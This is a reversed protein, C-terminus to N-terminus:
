HQVVLGNLTHNETNKGVLIDKCIHTGHPNTIDAVTIINLFMRCKNLIHMTKPKFNRSQFQAMLYSDGERILPPTWADSVHITAQIQHLFKWLYTLRTHPVYPYANPNATLIQVGCGAHLQLLNLEIIFLKAIDDDQRLHGMFRRIHQTGQENGLHHRAAGGYRHPGFLVAHPTHRNYGLSPLVAQYIPSMIREAQKDTFTTIPLCYSAVPVWHRYVVETEIRSLPAKKIRAALEQSQQLRYMYETKMQATVAMRVGLIREAHNLKVRRIIETTTPTNQIMIDGPTEAITAMRLDGKTTPVWTVLTFLCKPLSLDGGTHRLLRQWSQLVTTATQLLVNTPTNDPLNCMITNDDIYGVIHQLFSISTTVDTFQFGPSFQTLADLLPEM